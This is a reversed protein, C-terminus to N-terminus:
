EPNDILIPWRKANDSGDKIKWISFNLAPEITQEVRGNSDKIEFKQFNSQNHYNNIYAVGPERSFEEANCSMYCIADQELPAGEIFHYLSKTKKDDQDLMVAHCHSVAGAEGSGIIVENFGAFARISLRSGDPQEFGTNVPVNELNIFGDTRFATYCNKIKAGFIQGVFGGVVTECEVDKADGTYSVKAWSKQVDALSNAKGILGGQFIKGNGGNPGEELESEAIRFEKVTSSSDTVEASLIGVLGGIALDKCDEAEVELKESDYHCNVIKAGGDAVGVLGGIAATEMNELEGKITVHSNCYSLNGRVHGSLSGIEACSASEAVMAGHLNVYSIKAKSGVEAILGAAEGAKIKQSFNEIDYGTGGGFFADYGGTFAADDTGGLAKFDKNGLDIDLTQQFFKNCYVQEFGDKAINRLQQNARIQYPYKETGLVGRDGIAAAFDPNYSFVVGANEEKQPTPTTVTGDKEQKLNSQFPYYYFKKGEITVLEKKNGDIYANLNVGKFQSHLNDDGAYFFGYSHGSDSLHVKKDKLLTDYFVSYRPKGSGGASAKVVYWYAKQNITEKYAFLIDGETVEKEPEQWDGYHVGTSLQNDAKSLGTKNVTVFPYSKGELFSDTTHTTITGASKPMDTYSHAKITAVNDYTSASARDNENIGALFYCNKFTDGTQCKGIFAGVLAGTDGKVLGTAYCNEYSATGERQKGVLGGASGIIKNNKDDAVYASCTSYCNIIKTNSGGNIKGILGGATDVGYINYDMKVTSKYKGEETQGGSYSNLVKIERGESKIEGILGGADGAYDADIRDGKATIKMNSACNNVETKTGTYGILGGANGRSFNSTITGGVALVNSIKLGTVNGSTPHQMEAVLAASNREATVDFDKLVLNSIAFNTQCYRILAGDVKGEGSSDQHSDPNKNDIYVNSITHNYGDYEYLLDNKIGYYSGDALKEANVADEKLGAKYVSKRNEKDEGFYENWDMDSTQEARKVLYEPKYLEKTGDKVVNINQPLKSVESDLNELHRLYGISAIAQKKNDKAAEADRKVSEFLSNTMGEAERVTALATSSSSIVKVIIDEGPMLTKCIDAFHGGPRTIDDLVITYKLGNKTESSSVDKLEINEVDWWLNKKTEKKVPAVTSNDSDTLDLTFKEENGSEKGKVILTLHTQLTGKNDTTKNFYNPDIVTIKLTDKNEINMKLNATEGSLLNGAMAGGYYGIIGEDYDRRTHRGDSTDARGGKNDLAQIDLYSFNVDEEAYFVGYVTATKVNYEIIYRGDARVTEDIAGFPLMYQLISQDLNDISNNTKTNYEIYYYEKNDSPWVIDEKPLDSPANTMLHGLADKPVSAETDNLAKERYRKLEGSADAATLHNQAAIFIEKATSDMETLKLNRSYQIIGVMTIALLIISIALAVLTEALTFGSKNNLKRHLIGRM